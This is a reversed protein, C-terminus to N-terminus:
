SSFPAMKYVNSYIWLFCYKRWKCILYSFYFCELNIQFSYISFNSDVQGWIKIKGLSFITPDQTVQCRWISTSQDYRCKRPGSRMLLKM